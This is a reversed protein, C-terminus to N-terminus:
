AELEVNWYTGDPRRKRRSAAASMKAKQEASKPKGRQAVGVNEQVPGIFVNGIEYPGADGFRCMCYQGARKGRKEWHGSGQWVSWWVDFSLLFPIGRATANSKQQTFVRRIRKLEPTQAGRRKNSAIVAARTRERGEPTWRYM